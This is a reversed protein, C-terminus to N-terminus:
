NFSDVALPCAQGQQGQGMWQRCRAINQSCPILGGRSVCVVLIYAHTCFPKYIQRAPLKEIIIQLNMVMPLISDKARTTFEAAFSHMVPSETM